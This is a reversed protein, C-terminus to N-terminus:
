YCYSIAICEINEFQDKGTLEIIDNKEQESFICKPVKVGSKGRPWYFCEELEVLEDTM